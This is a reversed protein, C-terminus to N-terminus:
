NLKFKDVSQKLTDVMSKISDLEAKSSEMIALQEETSTASQQTKSSFERSIDALKLIIELVHNSGKEINTISDAVNKIQNDVTQNSMLLRELYSDVQSISKVGEKVQHVGEKISVNSKTIEGQIVEILQNIQTSAQNSQEALKKIEEAVVSFGKGAEGARAAEISANLALLNTQSAITSVSESFSLIEKFKIELDSMMTSTNDVTNNVLNIQQISSYLVDFAKTVNDVAESSDTTVLTITKVINKIEAFIQEISTSVNEISSAQETSGVSIDSIALTIEETARKTEALGENLTNVRLVVQETNKHINAIISTMGSTMAGFSQYLDGLEDNRTVDFNITLDGQQVQNVKAQLRKMSRIILYTLYTLFITALLALLLAVFFTRTKTESLQETIFDAEFDAGLSGIVEGSSNKIPVYASILDGWDETYDLEYGAQGEFSAEQITSMEETEIDGLSSFDEANTEKGDVIYIYDGNADKRMTYLYKLGTKERIDNLHMRLENYYAQNVDDETQLAQFKDADIVHVVSEVINLGSQGVAEEVLKESAKFM